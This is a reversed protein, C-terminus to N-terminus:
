TFTSDFIMCSHHRRHGVVRRSNDGESRKPALKVDHLLPGSFARNKSVLAIFSVQVVIVSPHSINKDRLLNNKSVEHM